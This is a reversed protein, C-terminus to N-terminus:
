RLMASLSNGRCHVSTQQQCIIKKRTFFNLADGHFDIGTAPLVKKGKATSKLLSDCHKRLGRINKAFAKLLRHSFGSFFKLDGYRFLGASYLFKKSNSTVEIEQKKRLITGPNIKTPFQTM